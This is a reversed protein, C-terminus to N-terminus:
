SSSTTGSRDSFQIDPVDDVLFGVGDEGYQEDEHGNGEGYFNDYKDEYNNDYPKQGLQCSSSAGYESHERTIIIQSRKKLKKMM